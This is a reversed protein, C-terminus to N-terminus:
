AQVQESIESVHCLVSPLHVSVSVCYHCLRWGPMSGRGRELCRTPVSLALSQTTCVFYSIM